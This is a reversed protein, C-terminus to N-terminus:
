LKRQRPMRGVELRRRSKSHNRRSATRPRENPTTTEVPQAASLERNNGRPRAASKERCKGEEDAEANTDRMQIQADTLIIGSVPSHPLRGGAGLEKLLHLPLSPKKVGPPPMEM